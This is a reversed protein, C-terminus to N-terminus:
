ISIIPTSAEETIVSLPKDVKEKDDDYMCLGIFGAHRCKAGTPCGGLFCTLACYKDGSSADQLVCQPKATTGAPVDTPCSMGQCKPTCTVGQVGQVQVSEEDSQCPPKEYHSSPSPAPPSPPSPPSPPAPSPGPAPAASVVPYSPQMKIGCEGAGAKGRLLKGFGQEGWSSGWSNKILWYDQGNETGYGVLLVGHDLNSGCAGTLVGHKYLQFSMQDAEIGM